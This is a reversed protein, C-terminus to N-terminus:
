VQLVPQRQLRAKHFGYLSTGVWLMHSGSKDRLDRAINIFMETINPDQIYLLTTIYMM